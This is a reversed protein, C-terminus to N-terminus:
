HTGPKKNAVNYESDKSDGPSVGRLWNCVDKTTVKSMGTAEAEEPSRAKDVLTSKIIAPKFGLRGYEQIKNIVATSKKHTDSDAMSHGSHGRKVQVKFQNDPLREVTLSAACDYHKQFTLERGSPNVYGDPKKKAHKSNRSQNLRCNWYAKQSKDGGHRTYWNDVAEWQAHFEAESLIFPDGEDYFASRKVKIEAVALAMLKEESFREGTM